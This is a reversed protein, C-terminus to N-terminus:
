EGHSLHNTYQTYKDKPALMWKESLVDWTKDKEIETVESIELDMGKAVFNKTEENKIGSYYKKTNIYCV